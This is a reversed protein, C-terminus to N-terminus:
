TTHQTHQLLSLHVAPRQQARRRMAVKGHHGLAFAAWVADCVWAQSLTDAIVDGLSALIFMAYHAETAGGPNFVAGLARKALALDKVGCM